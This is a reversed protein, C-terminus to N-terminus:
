APARVWGFRKRFLWLFNAFADHFSRIKKEGQRVRYDVPVEVYRFGRRLVEAKLEESFAMGDHLLHLQPLLDRRFAWMGSQSDRIPFRYLFRFAINLM